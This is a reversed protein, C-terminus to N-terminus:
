QFSILDTRSLTVAAKRLPEKQPNANLQTLLQYRGIAIDYDQAASTGDDAVVVTYTRLTGGVATYLLSGNERWGVLILRAIGKGRLLEDLPTDFFRDQGLGVVIPDGQAPAVEPLIPPQTAPTSYLVYVGAARASALLSAFRPVMELCSAQPTCTQTTVDLVLIATTAPDLSVPVPAPAAPIQQAEVTGVTVLMLAGTVMLFAPKWM